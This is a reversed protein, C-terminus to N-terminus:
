TGYVGVECLCFSGMFTTEFEERDMSRVKTEWEEGFIDDLRRWDDIEDDYIEYTNDIWGKELLFNRAREFDKTIGITGHSEEDIMIITMKM